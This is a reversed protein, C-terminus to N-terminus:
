IAINIQITSSNVVLRFYPNKSRRLSQFCACLGWYSQSSLGPPSLGDPKREYKLFM